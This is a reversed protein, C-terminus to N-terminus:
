ASLGDRRHVVAQVSREKPFAPEHGQNGHAEALSVSARRSVRRLEESEHVGSRSCTAPKMGRCEPKRIAMGKGATGFTRVPHTDRTSADSHSTARRDHQAQEIVVAGVCASQEAVWPT